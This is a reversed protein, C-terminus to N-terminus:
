QPRGLRRALLTGQRAVIYGCRVTDAGGPPVAAAIRQVTAVLAASMGGARGCGRVARHLLSRYVAIDERSNM